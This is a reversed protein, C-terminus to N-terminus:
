ENRYQHIIIKKMRENKEFDVYRSDSNIKSLNLNAKKFAEKQRELREIEKMGRVCQQWLYDITLQQSKSLQSGDEEVANVNGLIVELLQVVYEGIKNSENELEKKM